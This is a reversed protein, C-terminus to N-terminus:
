FPIPDNSHDDYTPLNQDPKQSPAPNSKRPPPTEAADGQDRPQLFQVTDVVVVIKQRKEGAQTDWRELVLHGEIYTQHGKRLYQECLDALKPGSEGRNFAKVDLFCPDDEWEGATNKKRSGTVAFGFQCVKGGNNFTRTEPDRTLRGILIVKNVNAM